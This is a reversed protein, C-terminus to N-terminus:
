KGVANSFVQKNHAPKTSDKVRPRADGFSKMSARTDGFSKQEGETKVRKMPPRADGFSKMSPRADGDKKVRKVDVGVADSPGRKSILDLYESKIQKFEKTDRKTRGDTMKKGSVSADDLGLAKEKRKERRQLFREDFREGDLVRLGPMM